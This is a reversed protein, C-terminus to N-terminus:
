SLFMSGRRLPTGSKKLSTWSLLSAYVMSSNRLSPIASSSVARILVPKLAISPPSASTFTLNRSAKGPCLFHFSTSDLSAGPM